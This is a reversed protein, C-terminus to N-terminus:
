PKEEAEFLPLQPSPGRPKRPSRTRPPRVVELVSLKAIAGPAIFAREWEGESRLGTLWLGQGVALLDSSLIGEIVHRDPGEVRVATGNRRAGAARALSRAKKQLSPPRDFDTIFFVAVVDARNLEIAQGEPSLLTLTAGATLQAPDLFGLVQQRTGGPPHLRVAVRKYTSPNM